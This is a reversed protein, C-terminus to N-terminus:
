RGLSSCEVINGTLNSVCLGCLPSGYSASGPIYCPSGGGTHAANSYSLMRFPPALLLIGSLERACLECFGKVVSFNGLAGHRFSDGVEGVMDVSQLRSSTNPEGLTSRHSIEGM